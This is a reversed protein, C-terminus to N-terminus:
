RIGKGQYYRKRPLAVPILFFNQILTLTHHSGNRYSAHLYQLPFGTAKSDTKRPEMNKGDTGRQRLLATSM